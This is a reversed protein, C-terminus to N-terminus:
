HVSLTFIVFPWKLFVFHMIIINLSNNSFCVHHKNLQICVRLVTESEKVSFTNLNEVAAVEVSSEVGAEIEEVRQSVYNNIYMTYYDISNHM